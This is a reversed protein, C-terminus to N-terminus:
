PAETRGKQQWLCAKYEAEAAGYFCGAAEKLQDRDRVEIHRRNARIAGLGELEHLAVTVGARRVGLLYAITDHTLHLKDGQIRDDAMLIWRALRNILKGRSNALSTSQVQALHAHLFHLMRTRFPRMRMAEQFASAEMRWAHGDIQMITDHLSQSTETILSTGTLGEHGVQAVETRYLRPDGTIISALGSTIFHVHSVDDGTQEVMKGAPLETFKLSPLLVARISPPLADLIQNGSFTELTMRCGITAESFSTSDRM